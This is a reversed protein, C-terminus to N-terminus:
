PNLTLAGAAATTTPRRWDSHRKRVDAATVPESTRSFIPSSIDRALGIVIVVHLLISLPDRLAIYRRGAGRVFVTYKILFIIIGRVSKVDPFRASASFFFFFPRFRVSPPRVDAVYPRGYYVFVWGTHVTCQTYSAHTGTRTHPPQGPPPKPPPLPFVAASLIVLSGGGRAV